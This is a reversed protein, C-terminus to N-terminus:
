ASHTIFGSVHMQLILYCPSAYLLSSPSITTSSSLLLTLVPYYGSHNSFPLSIPVTPRQLLLDPSSPVVTPSRQLYALWCSRRDTFHHQVYTLMITLRHLLMIWKHTTPPRRLSAFSLMIAPLQFPSILMITSQHLPARWKQTTPPRRHSAVSLMIAPLLFPSLWYSWRDLFRREGYTYLRHDGYSSSVAHEM